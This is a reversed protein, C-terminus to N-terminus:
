VVKDTVYLCPSATARRGAFAPFDIGGFVLVAGWWLLWVAMVIRPLEWFSADLYPRFVTLSWFSVAPRRGSNDPALPKPGPGLNPWVWPGM